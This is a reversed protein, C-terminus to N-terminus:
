QGPPRLFGAEGGERSQVRQCSFRQAWAPGRTAPLQPGPQLCRSSPSSCAPGPGLALGSQDVFAASHPRDAAELRSGGCPMLPSDAGAM